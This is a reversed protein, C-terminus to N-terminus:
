RNGRRQLNRPLWDKQRENPMSKLIDSTKGVQLSHEGNPVALDGSEAFDEANSLLVLGSGHESIPGYTNNRERHPIADPPGVFRM